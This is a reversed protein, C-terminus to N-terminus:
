STYGTVVTKLGTSIIREPVFGTRRGIEMALDKSFLSNGHADTYNDGDGNPIIWAAKRLETNATETM